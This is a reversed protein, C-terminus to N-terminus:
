SRKRYPAKAASKVGMKLPETVIRGGVMSTSMGTLDLLRELGRYVAGGSPSYVDKRSNADIFKGLDMILGDVTSLDDATALLDKFARNGKLNILENQLKGINLDGKKEANEFARKILGAKLDQRLVDRKAGEPMVDLMRKVNQKTNSKGKLTAGFAMNVLNDPTLEDKQMIDEILSNQGKYKNTGFKNKFQAYNKNAKFIQEVVDDDGNKFATRAINDLWDDYTNKMQGALAGEQTGPKYSNLGARWAQLEAFDIPKQFKGDKVAKKTIENLVKIDERIPKMSDKPLAVKFDPTQQLDDMSRGLTDRTYERYVKSKAIADNRSKILRAAFRKEARGRRRVQGIAGELLEDSSKKGAMRAGMNQVDQKFVDDAQNIMAQYEEGLQGQRAMEEARMMKVDGRAAGTPLRVRDGMTTQIQTNGRNAIKQLVKQTLPGNKVTNVASQGMKAMGLTAPGALM